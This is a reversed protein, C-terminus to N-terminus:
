SRASGRRRLGFGWGVPMQVLDIELDIAAHDVEPEGHTGLTFREVKQDLHRAFGNCGAHHGFRQLKNRAGNPM